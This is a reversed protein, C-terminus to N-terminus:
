NKIVPNKEDENVWWREKEKRIDDDLYYLQESRNRRGAPASMMTGGNHHPSPSFNLDLSAVLMKMNEVQMSRVDKFTTGEQGFYTPDRDPDSVDRGETDWIGNDNYLSSAVIRVNNDTARAPLLSRYYGANPFLILEAGKLSVLEAVDTFWSDYCTMFGVRGFDTNLVTVSQGPTVGMPYVEPSYPHIKDYMGAMAGARDYLVVTNYLRDNQEDKRVIGGAIYLHYKAAMEAMMKCSPGDLTEFNEGTNMYEPLLVIDAGETSATAIVKRMAEFTPHGSTCAIRVWRPQIKEVEKLSINSFTISGHESFRFIIRAIATDLGSGTLNIRASGEIWGGPKKEYRFIGDKNDRSFLQVLLNRQPNIDDSMRFLVKFLYSKGLELPVATEIAGIADKKGNGQMQLMGKQKKEIRKFNPSLTPRITDVKWGLPLQSNSALQFDGNPILNVEVDNPPRNISQAVVLDGFCIFALLLAVPWRNPRCPALKQPSNKLEMSHM